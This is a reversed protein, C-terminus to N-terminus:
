PTAEARQSSIVLAWIVLDDDGDGNPGMETPTQHTPNSSRPWLWSRGDGTRVYEKVTAEYLGNANRRQVIVKEGSRPDRGLDLFKVCILTTGEPYVLNMSDGRVELALKPFQRFGGTNAVPVTYRDEQPWEVAEHWQGAEVAGVLEVTEFDVLARATLFEDVGLGFFRSVSEISDLGPKQTDQEWRSVSAQTAGVEKALQTQDLGKAKRLRRIKQGLTEM